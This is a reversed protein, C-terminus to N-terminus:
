NQLLFLVYIFYEGLVIILIDAVALSSLYMNTITHMYKNRRIVICTTLNGIVGSVFLVVYIFILCITSLPDRKRNGLKTIIINQLNDYSANGIYINACVNESCNAIIDFDSNLNAFTEMKFHWYRSNRIFDLLWIQISSGVM